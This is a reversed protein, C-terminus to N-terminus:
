FRGYKRYADVPHVGQLIAKRVENETNVVGEARVLVERAIDQPIAIVGDKDGVVFDGRRVTVEGIKIPEGYARLKWRGVIDRPTRYRCFVPFGLKLIYDIDRAGGDVVAGRAGRFKAAESSLEGIHASVSDNPQSVIVDGPRLDGLMKLIPIYIEEPDFSSTAEGAVTMAVGAVKTDMTLGQIAAPLCQNRYGMEDLVDAIAGTYILSYRRCADEVDFANAEPTAAVTGVEDAQPASGM